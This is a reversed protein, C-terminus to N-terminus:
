EPLSYRFTYRHEGPSVEAIMSGVLGALEGTGSDPVVAISQKQVGRTVTSSHQLLFSGSRGHLTGIVHEILVYGASDEVPTMATLMEGRSTAVLDGSFRKENIFRALASGDVKQPEGQPTMKVDFTGIAAKM